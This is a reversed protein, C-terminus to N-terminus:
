GALFAAIPEIQDPSMLMPAHGAGAVTVLRARPGRRMMAEATAVDLLLSDAGRVVLTPCAITDWREWSETDQVEWELFPVRIAPDYHLRWRTGDRRASHLALHRWQEDTLAGFPAHVFRLHQELEALTAFSLDLGLYAKIPALAAGPIFPGVDNLVLRAIPSAEGAAVAMGVLGGMSTGVWDVRELGLREVFRRLHRAYVEVDYQKPDALWDSLGRGAVDVCVVRHGREALARALVDFDRANRTLGHVCLIARAAEPDGWEVYGLRLNGFEEGLSVRSARM